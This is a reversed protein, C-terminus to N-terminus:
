GTSFLEFAGAMGRIKSSYRVMESKGGGCLMTFTFLLESLLIAERCSVLVSVWCGVRVFILVM